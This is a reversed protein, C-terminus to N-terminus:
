SKDCKVSLQKGDTAIVINGNLDTRYIKDTYVNMREVAEEDPHGYTNGAGCMVVCIQPKVKALFSSTSSSKSGHHGAKLVSASIDAGSKLIEKESVDEADGTFLFSQEGYTFKFVASYNNLDKYSESNPALFEMVADSTENVKITYKLGPKAATAKMDKSKIANILNEYTKTTPTMDGTVKPMFIKGIEFNGIVEPLGGIHDSHPHTAIVYDLKTINLKKLYDTVTKGCESEGADVLINYNGATILCCDGQGVDIYHVTVDANIEKDQAMANIEPQKVYGLEMSAAYGVGTLILLVLIWLPLSLKLPTKKAATKRGSKKRTAM